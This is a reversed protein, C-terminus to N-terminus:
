GKRGGEGEGRKRRRKSSRGEEGKIEPAPLSRFKGKKGDSGEKEGGGGREGREINLRRRLAARLALVPV